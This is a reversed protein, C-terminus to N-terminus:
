LSFCIKKSKRESSRWKVDMKEGTKMLQIVFIDKFDQSKGKSQRQSHTRIKM